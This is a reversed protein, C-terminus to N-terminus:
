ENGLFERLLSDKPVLSTDMIPFKNLGRILRKADKYHISDKEIQKLLPLAREKFVCTEYLHITNIRVDANNRFPFLYKDEGLCVSDWLRYTNEPSSGRYRYDRILRRVFRMNRKNLVINNREDYIRSSVNIYIKFLRDQPLNDTIIPNLAHLGEVIIIDQESVKLERLEARREGTIFDYKPMMAAGKTVLTSLTSTLFPLDLANVSEFDYSGDSFRPSDVRNKYFDDLSITFSKHGKAEIEAKLRKATTTKGASSPGALMIIESVKTENIKKAVSNLIAKYRGESLDRFENPSSKAMETIYELTNNINAM